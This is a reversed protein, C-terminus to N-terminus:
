PVRVMGIVVSDRGMTGSLMREGQRGQSFKGILTDHVERPYHWIVTMRSNREDLRYTGYLRRQQNNYEFLCENGPDFYALTLVSDMCTRAAVERQNVTVRSVRYKGTLWPNRDPPGYHWILLLPVLVVSLRLGNKVATSRIPASIPLSPVSTVGTRAGMEAGFFVQVLRPYEWLLLYVLAILLEIAQISEGAEFHYCANLLVINLLVPILVFVGALRTRRFLLLLSGLIQFGGIICIFARSRGFFAWTLDEPAFSSFPLDLAGLHTSFQLHFWKQLGIMTLDMAIGYRIVGQWFALVAAQRERPQQRQLGWRVAYVFASLIMLLGIVLTVRFPLWDVLFRKGIRFFCFGSVLGAIICTVIRKSGSIEKM